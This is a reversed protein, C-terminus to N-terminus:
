ILICCSYIIQKVDLSSNSHFMNKMDLLLRKELSSYCHIKLVTCEVLFLPYEWFPPFFLLVQFWFRCIRFFSFFGGKKDFMKKWLYRQKMPDLEIADLSYYKLHGNRHGEFSWHNGVVQEPGFTSQLMNM